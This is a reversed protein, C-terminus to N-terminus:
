RPDVESIPVQELLGLFTIRYPSISPICELDAYHGQVAERMRAPVPRKPDTGAELWARRMGHGPPIRLFPETGQVLCRLADLMSQEDSALFDELTLSVLPMCDPLVTLAAKEFLRWEWNNPPNPEPRDEEGEAPAAVPPDFRRWAELPSSERVFQVARASVDPSCQERYARLPEPDRPAYRWFAFEEPLPPTRNEKFYIALEEARRRARDVESQLGRVSGLSAQVAQECAKRQFPGILARWKLGLRHKIELVGNEVEHARLWHMVLSLALPLLFGVPALVASNGEPNVLLIGLALVVSLV